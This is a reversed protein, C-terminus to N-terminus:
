HEVRYYSQSVRVLILQAVPPEAALEPGSGSFSIEEVVREGGFTGAFVDNVKRALDPDDPTTSAIDVVLSGPCDYTASPLSGPGYGARSRFPEWYEAVVRDLGLGAPRPACGLEALRDAAEELAAGVGDVSRAGDLVGTEGLRCEWAFEETVKWNAQGRHCADVRALPARGPTTPFKTLLKEIRARAEQRAAVVDDAAPDFDREFLSCGSLAGAVVATLAAVATIAAM